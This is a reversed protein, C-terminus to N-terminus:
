APSHSALRTLTHLQKRMMLLDGWVLLYRHAAPLRGPVIALAIKAVLRSRGPELQRVTYTIALDGFLRRAKPDGIRLTIQEGPTFDVLEFISAFTQGVELQELEPSLTRPSRRGFNDVLDYSYPAIKLQCFWRFVESADASATAARFCGVSPAQVFRDCPYRQAVEQATTNWVWPLRM